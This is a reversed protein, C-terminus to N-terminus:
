KYDPNKINKKNKNYKEVLELKEQIIKEEEEQDVMYWEELM